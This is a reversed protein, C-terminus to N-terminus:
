LLLLDLGKHRRFRNLHSGHSGGRRNAWFAIQQIKIGSTPCYGETPAQRELRLLSRKVLTQRRIRPQDNIVPYEADLPANSGASPTVAASWGSWPGTAQANVAAVRFQYSTGNTLGTFEYRTDAANQTKTDSADAANVAEVRYNIISGGGTDSPPTIYVVATGNRPLVSSIAPAAPIGSTAQVIVDKFSATRLDAIRLIAAGDNM